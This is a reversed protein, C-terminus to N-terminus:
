ADAAPSQSEPRKWCYPYQCRCGSGDCSLLYCTEGGCNADGVPPKLILREMAIKASRLAGGIVMEGPGEPHAQLSRAMATPPAAVLQLVVMATMLTAVGAAAKKKGSEM